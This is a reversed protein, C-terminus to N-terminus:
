IAEPANKEVGMGEAYMGGICGYGYTGQMPRRTFGNSRRSTTRLSGRVATYRRGHQVERREGSGGGQSGDSRPKRMRAWAMDTPTCRALNLMAVREGGEASRRRGVLLMLKTPLSFAKAKQGHRIVRGSERGPM